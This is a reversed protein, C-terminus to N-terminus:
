TSSSRIARIRSQELPSLEPRAPGRRRRYLDDKFYQAEIWEQIRELSFRWDAGIRFAPLQGRKLMKYISSRHCGFYEALEHVTMITQPM